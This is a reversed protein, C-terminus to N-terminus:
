TGGAGNNSIKKLQNRKLTQFDIRIENFPGHIM